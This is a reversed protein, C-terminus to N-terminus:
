PPAVGRCHGQGQIESLEGASLAGCGTENDGAVIFDVLLNSPLGHCCAAQATTSCDPAVLCDGRSPDLCRVRLGPNPDTYDLVAITDQMLATGILGDPELAEPAVDRRLSLPLAHTEPLVLVEIWRQPNPELQDRVFRTEGLVLLSSTVHDTSGDVYPPTTDEISETRSFARTFATCQGMLGDLRRRARTCPTEGRTQALGPLLALTRVGLRYLPTQGASTDGASPWGALFLTGDQAHLCARTDDEIADCAPLQEPDGSM